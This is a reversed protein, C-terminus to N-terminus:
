VLTREDFEIDFPSVVQLIEMNRLKDKDKLLNLKLVDRAFIIADGLTQHSNMYEIAKLYEPKLSVKAGPINQLSPLLDMAEKYMFNSQKTINKYIKYIDILGANKIINLQKNFEEYEEVYKVVYHYYKGYIRQAKSLTYGHEGQTIRYAYERARIRVLPEITHNVM